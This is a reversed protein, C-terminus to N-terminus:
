IILHASYRAEDPSRVKSTNTNQAPDSKATPATERMPYKAANRNEAQMQKWERRTTNAM